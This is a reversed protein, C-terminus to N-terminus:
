NLKYVSDAYTDCGRTDIRIYRAAIVLGCTGGGVVLYDLKSALFNDITVIPM